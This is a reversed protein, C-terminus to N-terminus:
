RSWSPEVNQLHQRIVRIANLMRRRPRLLRVPSRCETCRGRVDIRDGCHTRRDVQYIQVDEELWEGCHKCKVADSQIEEACYRCKFKEPIDEHEPPEFFIEEELQMDRMLENVAKGTEQERRSSGNDEVTDDSVNKLEMRGGCNPCLPEGAVQTTDFSDMCYYCYYHQNAIM